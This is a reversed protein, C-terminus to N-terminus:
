NFLFYLWGFYKVANYFKEAWQEHEYQEIPHVELEIHKQMSVRFQRHAENYARHRSMTTYIRGARIADILLDHLRCDVDFFESYYNLEALKKKFPTFYLITKAIRTSCWSGNKM